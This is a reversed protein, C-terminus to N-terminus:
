EVSAFIEQDQKLHPVRFQLSNSYSTVNLQSISPGAPQGRLDNHYWGKTGPPHTHCIANKFVLSCSGSASVGGTAFFQPIVITGVISIM